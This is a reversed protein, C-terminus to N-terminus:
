VILSVLLVVTILALGRASDDFSVGVRGVVM